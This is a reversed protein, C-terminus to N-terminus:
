RSRRGPRRGAAEVQEAHGLAWVMGDDRVEVAIRELPREPPGRLVEGTHIDFFGEHCPCELEEGEPFVVCGLHTCKQNYAVFGDELHVLIAPDDASPYRFLHSGGLPVDDAPVIAAAALAPAPTRAQAWLAIGFTGAAFAGSALVLYRAFERRTVAEEGASTFPFDRRWIPQAPTGRVARAHRAVAADDQLGGARANAHDSAHDPPQGRTSTSM